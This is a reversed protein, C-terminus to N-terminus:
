NLPHTAPGEMNELDADNEKWKMAMNQLCKTNGEWVTFVQCEPAVREIDKM